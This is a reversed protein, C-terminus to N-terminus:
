FFSVQPYPGLVKSFLTFIMVSVLPFGINVLVCSLIFQWLPLSPQKDCWKSPKWLLNRNALDIDHATNNFNYAPHITCSGDSWKCCQPNYRIYCDELTPTSPGPLPILALQAMMLFFFGVIITGREGVKAAVKKALIFMTVSLAGGVGSMAGNYVDAQQGTWKFAIMSYPTTLTEYIALVNMNGFYLFLLLGVAFYDRPLFRSTAKAHRVEDIDSNIGGPGYELSARSSTRSRSHLSPHKPSAQRFEKFYKVLAVWNVICLLTALFAPATRYDFSLVRASADPLTTSSPTLGWPSWQLSDIEGDGVWLREPHREIWEEGFRKAWRSLSDNTDNDIVNTFLTRDLSNSTARCATTSNGGSPANLGGFAIGLLPGFIYGLGGSAALLGM